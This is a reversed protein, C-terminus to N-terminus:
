GDAAAGAAAEAVKVLNRLVIAQYNYSMMGSGNYRRVAYPWDCGLGARVPVGEYSATKYPGVPQYTQDSGAFLPTVGQQINQLGAGRVCQACDKMFRPDGADFKCLRLPGNGFETQRDDARTASTPGNVFHDFKDRLERSAKQLNKGVDLMFDSVEDARPPHHFLTYQGAGYGRSTVIHRAAPDKTDLGVVIFTDEDGARPENFHKLGSEQMLIAMLFPTPTQAPPLARIQEVIKRNEAVPDATSPLAPVSADDLIDSICEVLGQDAEGTPAAVRGQNFDVLRVPANGDAQSSNGNNNILDFQLAMVATTTGSGFVGDIGSRLYGLQRLDHQLDQIQQKSAGGGGAKLVLGAQRYSLDPM